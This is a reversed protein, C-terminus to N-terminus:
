QLLDQALTHWQRKIVWTISLSCVTQKVLHANQKNSVHVESCLILQVQIWDVEAEAHGRGVWVCLYVCVYM